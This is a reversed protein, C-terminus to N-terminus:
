EVQEKPKNDDVPEGNPFPDDALDPAPRPEGESDVDSAAKTLARTLSSGLRRLLKGSSRGPKKTATGEADDTPEPKDDAENSTAPPTANEVTEEATTGKEEPMPESDAAAPESAGTKEHVAPESQGADPPEAPSQKILSPGPQNDTLTGDAPQGASPQFPPAPPSAPKNEGCGAVLALTLIVAAFTSQRVVDNRKL